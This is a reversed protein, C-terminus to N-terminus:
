YNGNCLSLIPSLTLLNKGFGSLDQGHHHHIEHDANSHDWMMRLDEEEAIEEPLLKRQQNNGIGGLDHHHHHHDHDHHHHHHHHDDDHDHGHSCKHAAAVCLGFGLIALVLFGRVWIQQRNDWGSGRM